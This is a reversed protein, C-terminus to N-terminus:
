HIWRVRSLPFFIFMAKGRMRSRDLLGWRRADDSRNRNDGMVLLRGNPIKVVKNGRKDSAVWEKPTLESPYQVDTDEATYAENLAKGNVYVVGPVVKVKSGPCRLADAVHTNSVPKGDVLVKNPILKISCDEGDGSKPALAM